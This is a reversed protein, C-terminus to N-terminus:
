FLSSRMTGDAASGVDVDAGLRRNSSEFAVLWCESPRVSEADVDSKAAAAAMKDDVSGADDDDANANVRVRVDEDKEPFEENAVEDDGDGCVDDAASDNMADDLLLENFKDVADNASTARESELELWGRESCPLEDVHVCDTPLALPAFAMM